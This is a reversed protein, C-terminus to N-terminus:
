YFGVQILNPVWAMMGSFVRDKLLTLPFTPEQKSTSHEVFWEWFMFLVGSIGGLVFTAIIAPNTWSYRSGAEELAFVLLISFALLLITGLVDIRQLKSKTFKGRLHPILKIEKSPISSPLFSAILLM